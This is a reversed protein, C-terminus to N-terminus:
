DSELGIGLEVVNKFFFFESENFFPGGVDTREIRDLLGQFVQV